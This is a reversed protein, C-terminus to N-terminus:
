VSSWLVKYLAIYIPIQLLMPLCGGMPNIKNNKFLQMTEQNLKQKDEGYKQRLEKLRPQIAQMGKMSALSKRNIPNLLIKVLITLLIIAVGYNHILQYFFKLLYLMPVAVLTTWGLGLTKELGPIIVKLRKYDKPGGYILFKQAWREGPLVQATQFILKQFFFAEGGEQLYKGTELTNGQAGVPIVTGLFYRSQAGIWDFRGGLTQAAPVREWLVEKLGGEQFYIPHWRDPPTKFFLIGRQPSEEVAQKGWWIAPNFSLTKAALNKVEIEMELQYSGEKLYFRKSVSQGKDRAALEVSTKSKTKVSFQVPGQDMEVVRGGAEALSVMGEGNRTYEKLTWGTIVGGDTNLAIRVLDNELVVEEGQPVRGAAPGYDTAQGSGQRLTRLGHDTTKTGETPTKSSVQPTPAPPPAIVTYWLILVGMSLVIALFSRLGSSM